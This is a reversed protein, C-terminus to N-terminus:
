ANELSEKMLKQYEENHKTAANQLFHLAKNHRSGKEVYQAYSVNTGIYVSKDKPKGITGSYSGKADGKNAKYEKISSSQGGIAYTISNRLLGTDVGHGEYLEAKAHGEATMGIAMLGREIAAELADKTEATHDEIIVSNDAM